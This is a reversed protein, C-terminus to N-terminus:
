SCIFLSGSRYRIGKLAFLQGLEGAHPTLVWSKPLPFLNEKVCVTFADADVVVPMGRFEKLQLLLKKTLEGVGLGPGIAVATKKEFLNKNSIKQTLVDPLIKAYVSANEETNCAWTVYGAGMRYAPCLM